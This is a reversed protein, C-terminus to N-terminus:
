LWIFFIDILIISKILCLSKITILYFYLWRLHINRIFINRAEKLTKATHCVFGDNTFKQKLIKNISSSDEVILITINTVNIMNKFIECHMDYRM